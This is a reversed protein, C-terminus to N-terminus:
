TWRLQRALMAKADTLAAENAAVLAYSGHRATHVEAILDGSSRRLMADTKGNPILMLTVRGSPTQLVIHGGQGNPLICANAYTAPLVGDMQAGVKALLRNLMRADVVRTEQIHEPEELVHNVALAVLDQSQAGPQSLTVGLVIALGGVLSAAVAYFRQRKQRIMRTALLIRDEMGDPAHTQLEAEWQAELNIQGAMRRACDACTEAHGLAATSLRLPAANLERQFEMCNM